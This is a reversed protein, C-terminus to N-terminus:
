CVKLNPRHCYAAVQFRPSAAHPYQDNFIFLLNGGRHALLIPMMVADRIARASPIRSKNEYYTSSAVQLTTCIPEVGFDDRNTDIFAVM